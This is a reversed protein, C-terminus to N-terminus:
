KKSALMQKFRNYKQVYDHEKYPREALDEPTLNHGQFWSYAAQEEDGFKNLVKKALHQALVQEDAPTKELEQKIMEPEMKRYRKLHSPLAGEMKMRNLIEQVTNPMLGYRGIASTGAHIGQQMEPHAFNKGGSSEIMSITRLFEELQPNDQRDISASALGELNKMKSAPM